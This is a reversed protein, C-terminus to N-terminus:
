DEQPIFTIKFMTGAQKIREITGELQETFIHVLETGLSNSEEHVFDMPMGIGNDGIIMQYENNNIEQVELTVEGSERDTFAYKFANTM